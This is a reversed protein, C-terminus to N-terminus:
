NIRAGDQGFYYAGVWNNEVRAGDTGIYYYKGYIMQIGPGVLQGNQPNFYYWKGGIATWGLSMKGEANAYYWHGNKEYIWREVELYGLNNFHRYSGDLATWCSVPYTGDTNLYWMGSQEFQWGASAYTNVTVMKKQLKPDVNSTSYGKGQAPNMAANNNVPTLAMNTSPLSANSNNAAPLAAGPGGFANGGYKAAYNISGDANLYNQNNTTNDVSTKVNYPVGYVWQTSNQVATGKAGPTMTNHVVPSGSDHGLDDSTVTIVGSASSYATYKNQVNRARVKAVYYGKAKISIDAETETGSVTYSKYTGTTSGAANSRFVTVQYQDAGEWTVADWSVVVDHGRQSVSIGTPATHEAAFVPTVMLAALALTALINKGFKTM